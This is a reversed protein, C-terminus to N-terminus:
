KKCPRTLRYITASDQRVLGEVDRMTQEFRHSADNLVDLNNEVLQGTAAGSPQGGHQAGDLM